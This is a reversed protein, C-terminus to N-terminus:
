RQFFERVQPPFDEVGWSDLDDPEIPEDLEVVTGRDLEFQGSKNLHTRDDHRGFKIDRKGDSRQFLTVAEYQGVDDAM